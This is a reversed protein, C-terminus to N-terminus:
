SPLAQQRKNGLREEPPEKKPRGRERPERRQAAVAEIEAYFRDNGLPHGLATRGDTRNIHQVYRRGVAIPPRPVAKADHPSVLLHV